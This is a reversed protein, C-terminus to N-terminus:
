TRLHHEPWERKGEKFEDIVKKFIVIRANRDTTCLLVIAEAETFGIDVVARKAIDLTYSEM